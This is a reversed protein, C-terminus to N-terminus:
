SETTSTTPLVGITLNFLIGYSSPTSHSIRALHSNRFGKPDTLSLIPLLIIKSASFYPRILYPSVNISAVDPLVPIPRAVHAETLFYLMIIVNGSFIDM